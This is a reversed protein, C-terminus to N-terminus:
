AGGAGPRFHLDVSYIPLNIKVIYLVEIRLAGDVRSVRVDDSHVPLGLSEAQKVIKDRVADPTTTSIAPDGALADLYRQLKWNEYYPPALLVAVAALVVLVAVGAAM